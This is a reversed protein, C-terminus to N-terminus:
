ESPRRESPCSCAEVKAIERAASEARNASNRGTGTRREEQHTAGEGPNESSAREQEDSNRKRPGEINEKRGEEKREGNRRERERSRESLQTLAGEQILGARAAVATSVSRQQAKTM